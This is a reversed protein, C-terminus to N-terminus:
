NENNCDALYKDAHKKTTFVSFVSISILVAMITYDNQLVTFTIIPAALSLIALLLSGKLIQLGFFKNIDYWANKNSLIRQEKFGILINPPVIKLYLPLAMTLTIISLLLYRSSLDIM